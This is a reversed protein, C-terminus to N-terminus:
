QPVCEQLVGGANVLEGRAPLGPGGFNLQISGKPPQVSALVKVIGLDLTKTSNLQSYDLPVQLTGCQVTLTTNFEGSQCAGWQIKVGAVLAPTCISLLLLPQSRTMNQRRAYAISQTILAYVHLLPLLLTRM